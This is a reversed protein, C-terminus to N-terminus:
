RPLSQFSHVPNVGCNVDWSKRRWWWGGSHVVVSEIWPLPVCICTLVKGLIMFERNCLILPHWWYGSATIWKSSIYVIALHQVVVGFILNFYLRIYTFYFQSYSYLLRITVDHSGWPKWVVISIHSIFDSLEVFAQCMHFSCTWFETARRSFSLYIVFEIEIIIKRDLTYRSTYNSTLYAGNKLPVGTRLRRASPALSFFNIQIWWSWWNKLNPGWIVGSSYWNWRVACYGLCSVSGVTWYGGSIWLKLFWVCYFSHRM